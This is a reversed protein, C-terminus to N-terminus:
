DLIPIIGGACASRTIMDPPQDVVVLADGLQTPTLSNQSRDVPLYTLCGTDFQLSSSQVTHGCGKFIKAISAGDVIAVGPWIMMEAMDCKLANTFTTDGIFLTGGDGLTAPFFPGSLLSSEVKNLWWRVENGSDSADYVWLHHQWTAPLDPLINASAGGNSLRLTLRSTTGQRGIFFGDNNVGGDANTFLSGSNPSGAFDPRVWYAWTAISVGDLFTPATWSVGESGSGTTQLAM